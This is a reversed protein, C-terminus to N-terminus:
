KARRPNAIPEDFCQIFLNVAGLDVTSPTADVHRDPDIAGEARTFVISFGVEALQRPTTTRVKGNPIPGANCAALLPDEDEDFGVWLSLSGDDELKELIFDPDSLLGGAVAVVIASTPRSLPVTM